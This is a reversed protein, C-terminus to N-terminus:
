GNEGSRFSGRSRSWTGSPLRKFGEDMADRGKAHKRAEDMIFMCKREEETSNTIKSCSRYALLGAMYERFAMTWKGSDFGYSGDTSVYRIYLPTVNVYWIGAEDLYEGFELDKSFTASASLSTLRALDSPKDFAYTFGFFPEVSASVTGEVSKTAFNWDAMELAYTVAENNSGWARDM